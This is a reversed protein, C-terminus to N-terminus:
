EPLLVKQDDINALAIIVDAEVRVPKKRYNNCIMRVLVPHSYLDDGM